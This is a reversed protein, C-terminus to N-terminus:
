ILWSWGMFLLLGFFVSMLLSVVKKGGTMEKLAAMMPRTAWLVGPIGFTLSTNWGLFINALLGCTTYVLAPAYGLGFAKVAWDAPHQSKWANRVLWWALLAFFSIGVTGYLIGKFAMGLVYGEGVEGTRHIDLSTQIFFLMFAIGSVSLAWQWSYRQLHAKLLMGPNLVMLFMTLFRKFGTSQGQSTKTEGQRAAGPLEQSLDAIDKVAHWYDLSPNWVMDQPLINGERILQILQAQDYPGHRNGQRNLYWSERKAGNDKKPSVM